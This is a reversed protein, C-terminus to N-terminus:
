GSATSERGSTPNEVRVEAGIVPVAANGEVRGDVARAIEAATMRYARRLRLAAEVWWQGIAGAPRAPASSGNLLAASGGERHRKLWKYVTRESIGFAAAIAAVPEGAGHREVILARAYPTTRANRHANM